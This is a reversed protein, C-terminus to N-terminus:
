LNKLISIYVISILHVLEADSECVQEMTLHKHIIADVVSCAALWANIRDSPYRNQMAYQRYMISRDSKLEKWADLSALLAQDFVRYLAIYKRHNDLHALCVKEIAEPDDALTYPIITQQFSDKYIAAAVTHKGGPFYHYIIGVSVNARRAIHRLTVTDYGDRMILDIFAQKIDLIKKEKDRYISRSM